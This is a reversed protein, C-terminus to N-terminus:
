QIANYRIADFDTQCPKHSDKIQLLFAVNARVNIVISQRCREIEGLM